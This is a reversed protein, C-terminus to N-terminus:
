DCEGWCECPDGGCDPDCPDGGCEPDCPDWGCACPDCDCPDADGCDCADYDPCSPDCPDLECPDNCLGWASIVALLDAVDVLCDGNAGPACDGVPRPPGSQDWAGIVELLDLVDTTGNGDIDPPCEPLPDLCDNTWEICEVWIRGTGAASSNGPGEADRSSSACMPAPLFNCPM